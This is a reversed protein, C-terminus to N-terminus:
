KCSHALATMPYSSDLIGGLIGGFYTVALVACVFDQMFNREHREACGVRSDDMQNVDKVCGSV